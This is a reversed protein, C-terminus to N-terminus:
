REVYSRGIVVRYQNGAYIIKDKEPSNVLTYQNAPLEEWGEGSRRQWEGENIDLDNSEIYFRIIATEPIRDSQAQNTAVIRDSVREYQIGDVDTYQELVIHSFEVESTDGLEAIISM